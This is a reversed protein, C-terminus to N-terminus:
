ARMQGLHDSSACSLGGGEEAERAESHASGGTAGNGGSCLLRGDRKGAMAIFCFHASQQTPM